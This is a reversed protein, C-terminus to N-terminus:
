GPPACNANMLGTPSAFGGSQESWSLSGPEEGSGRLVIAGALVHIAIAPEVRALVQVPVALDVVVRADERHLQQLARLIERELDVGEDGAVADDREADLGAIRLGREGAGHARAVAGAVGALADDASYSGEGAHGEPVPGFVDLDVHVEGGLFHLNARGVDRQLLLAHLDEVHGVGIRDRGEAAVLRLGTGVAVPRGSEKGVIDGEHFREGREEDRRPAAPHDHEVDRIGGSRGDESAM